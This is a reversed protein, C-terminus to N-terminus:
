ASFSFIEFERGKSPFMLRFYVFDGGTLFGFIEFDRGKNVLPSMLCLYPYFCFRGRLLLVGRLFHLFVCSLLFYIFHLLKPHIGTLTYFHELHHQAIHAVIFARALLHSFQNYACSTFHLCKSETKLLEFSFNVVLSLMLCITLLFNVLHWDLYVLHVVGFL